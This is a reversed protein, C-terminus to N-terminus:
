EKKELEKSGKIFGNIGISIGFQSDGSKIPDVWQFGAFLFGTKLRTSIIAGYGIASFNDIFDGTVRYFAGKAYIRTKNNDLVNAFLTAGKTSLKDIYAYSAALSFPQTTSTNKLLFLQVGGGFKVDNNYYNVIPAIEIHSSSIPMSLTYINQSEVKSYGVEAGLSYNSKTLFLSQSNLTNKEFFIIISLLLILRIM